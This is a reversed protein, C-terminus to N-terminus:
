RGDNDETLRDYNVHFINDIRYKAYDYMEQLEEMDKTVCMRNINGKLLDRQEDIKKLDDQTQKRM